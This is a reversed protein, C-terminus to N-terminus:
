RNNSSLSSFTLNLPIKLYHKGNDESKPLRGAEINVQISPFLLKPASLTADRTERMIVFEEKSTNETLQKNSTKSEKISTEFKLERGNPCYDHGVFVRTNEDLQYLVNHVSDYLKTADGKPFDCRGTGYDPMFLSDGTFVADEILYSLCAPTHGPTALAKIKLSGAELDQNDTILEDFQSGDTQQNSLNYIVNFTKQIERIHESIAIKSKPYFEKFLQSSSLHDAHAHTELVYHLNLDHQQLFNLVNNFSINEIKSGMAQYDLVPDIVIADKTNPDYVIYTLTFTQEDYLAHINM